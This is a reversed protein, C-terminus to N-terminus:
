AGVLDPNVGVAAARRRLDAREHERPYPMARIEDEMDLIAIEDKSKGFRARQKMAEAEAIAMEGALRMEYRPMTKAWACRSEALERCSNKDIEGSKTLLDNM